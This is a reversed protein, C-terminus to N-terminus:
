RSLAMIESSPLELPVKTGFGPAKLSRFVIREKVIRLLPRGHRPEYLDPHLSLIADADETSAGQLAGGFQHGNREAHGVGVADAMLLDQNLCTYPQCCLDEGTLLAPQGEARRKAVRAGNVLAHLVGKCSKVSSGAYGRAFADPLSADEDDSEDIITPLGKPPDWGPAELAQERPFPQELLLVAQRFGSLAPSRELGEVFATLAEPTYQENADLTARYGPACGDLVAAVDAIWQLDAAPDGKLKIKCYSCGHVDAAEELSAPLGDDVGAETRCLPSRFGVTHHASISWRPAIEGLHGRLAPPTVDAPAHNALGFLDTRVAEPFSTHAAHCAADILAAEILAPGYGAALRPMRKPVLAAVTARRVEDSLTAVTGTAELAVAAAVRLSERLEEVTDSLSAGPRKDFWRPALMQASRDELTQDGTEVEVLLHAETMEELRVDGFSFPMRFAVAREGARLSKIVLKM